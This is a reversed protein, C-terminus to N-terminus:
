HPIPLARLAAIVRKGREEDFPSGLGMREVEAWELYKLMEEETANQRLMTALQGAYGDYEYEPWNDLKMVGIPDWDRNLIDIIRRLWAGIAHKDLTDM